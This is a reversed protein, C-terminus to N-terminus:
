KTSEYTEALKELQKRMQYKWSGLYRLEAIALLTEIDPWEPTWRARKSSALIGIVIGFFLWFFSLGAILGLLEGPSSHQIEAIM